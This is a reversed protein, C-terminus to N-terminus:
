RIPVPINYPEAQKMREKITREIESGETNTFRDLPEVRGATTVGITARLECKRGKYQKIGKGDALLGSLDESPVPEQYVNHRLFAHRM